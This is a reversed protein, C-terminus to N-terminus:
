LWYIGGYWRCGTTKVVGHRGAVQLGWRRGGVQGYCVGYCCGCWGVVVQWAWLLAVGLLVGMVYDGIPRLGGGMANPKGDDM